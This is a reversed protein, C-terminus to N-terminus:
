TNKLPFRKLREVISPHSRFFKTYLPHYYQEDTTINLTKLAKYLGDQYPKDFAHHDAEFEQQHLLTLFFVSMLRLVIFNLLTLNIWFMWEMIGDFYYYHMAINMTLVMVFLVTALGMRKSLHRKVGHGVEHAMIGEVMSANMRILLRKSLYMATHHKVKFLVANTGLLMKESDIMFVAEKEMVGGFFSTDLGHKFPVFKFKKNLTKIMRPVIFIHLISFTVIMLGILMIPHLLVFFGLQIVAYILIIGMMRGVIVLANIVKQRSIWAWCVEYFLLGGLFVILGENIFRLGTQWFFLIVGMLIARWLMRKIHTFRIVRNSKRTFNLAILATESGLIFLSAMVLVTQFISM